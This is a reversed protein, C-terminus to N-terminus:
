GIVTGFLVSVQQEKGDSEGEPTPKSESINSGMWQTFWHDLPIKAVMPGTESM